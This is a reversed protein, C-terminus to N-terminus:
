QVSFGSNASWATKGPWVGNNGLWGQYSHFHSPLSLFISYLTVCFSYSFSTSFILAYQLLSHIKTLTVQLLTQRLVFVAWRIFHLGLLGLIGREKECGFVCLSSSPDSPSFLYILVLPHFSPSFFLDAPSCFLLWQHLRTVEEPSDQCKSLM